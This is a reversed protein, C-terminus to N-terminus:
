RLQRGYAVLFEFGDMVPMAIDLLILCYDAHSVADLALLGNVATVVPYGELGLVTTLAERLSESDEVVLIPLSHNSSSITGAQSALILTNQVLPLFIDL